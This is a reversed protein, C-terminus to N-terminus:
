RIRKCRFAGKFPNPYLNKRKALLPNIVLNKVPNKLGTQSKKVPSKERRRSVNPYSLVSAYFFGRL